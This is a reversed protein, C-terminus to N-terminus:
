PVLSEARRLAQWGAREGEKLMMKAEKAAAKEAAKAEATKSTRPAPAASLNFYRATRSSWFRPSYRSAQPPECLMTSPHYVFVSYRFSPAVAPVYSEYKKEGCPLTRARTRTSKTRRGGHSRAGTSLNLRTVGEKRATVRRRVRKGRM